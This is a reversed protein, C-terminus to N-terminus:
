MHVENAELTVEGLQRNKYATTTGPVIGFDITNTSSDIEFPYENLVTFVANKADSQGVNEAKVWVDFWDGPNVPYPEYKLGIIKFSAAPNATAGASLTYNEEYVNAAISAPIFVLVAIFLAGLITVQRFNKNVSM